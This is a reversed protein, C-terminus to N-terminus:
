NFKNPLQTIEAITEVKLEQLIPNLFNEVTINYLDFYEKETIARFGHALISNNRRELVRLLNNKENLFRISLSSEPELETIITYSDLLALKLKGNVVKKQYEFKLNDPLLNINIDSTQQNHKVKIYIQIFLELVRYIRATADDYRGQFAKREANLILDYVIEYRSIKFTPKFNEPYDFSDDIFKRSSMMLQILRNFNGISENKRYEKISLLKYAKNHDFKDWADFAKSLNSLNAIEEALNEPINSHETTIQELLKHAASYDYSAILSKVRFLLKSISAYNTVIKSVRETGDITKINNDRLGKVVSIAVDPVDISAMVLGATMSKTGGTYDAIIEVNPFKNRIDILLRFIISYCENIDDLYKIKVIEFKDYSLLNQTAINPMDFSKPNEGCVYGEGIVSVYSGKSNNSDDSCIFYVFDPKYSKIAKSIPACSGGITVVLIKKM